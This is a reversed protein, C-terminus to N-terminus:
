YRFITWSMGSKICILGLQIHLMHVELDKPYIHEGHIYLRGAISDNHTTDIYARM